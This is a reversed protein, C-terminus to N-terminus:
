VTIVVSTVSRRSQLDGAWYADVWAVVDDLSGKADLWTSLDTTGSLYRVLRRLKKLAGMTPTKIYKALEGISWQADHRDHAIYLLIGM